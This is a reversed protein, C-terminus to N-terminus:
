LTKEKTNELKIIKLANDSSIEFFENKIQQIYKDILGTYGSGTKLTESYSYISNSLKKAMVDKGNFTLTYMNNGLHKITNNSENNDSNSEM